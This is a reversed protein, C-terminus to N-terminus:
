NDILDQLELDIAVMRSLLDDKSTDQGGGEPDESLQQLLRGLGDLKVDVLLQVKDLGGSPQVVRVEEPHGQEPFVM